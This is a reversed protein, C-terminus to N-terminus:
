QKALEHNWAVLSLWIRPEGQAWAGLRGMGGPEVGCVGGLGSGDTRDVGEARM